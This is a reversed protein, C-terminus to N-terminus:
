CRGDPAEVGHTVVLLALVVGDCMGLSPFADLEEERLALDTWGDVSDGDGAKHGPMPVLLWSGVFSIRRKCMLDIDM